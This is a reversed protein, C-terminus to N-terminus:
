WVVSARCCAPTANCIPLYENIRYRNLSLGAAAAIKRAPCRRPVSPVHRSQVVLRGQYGAAAMPIVPRMARLTGDLFFERNRSAYGPWAQGTFEAWALRAPWDPAFWM